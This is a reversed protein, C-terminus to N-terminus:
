RRMAQFIASAGWGALMALVLSLAGYVYPQQRSLNFLWAELGVKRVDIVTEVLDIVEGGRTIFIRIDYGGEILNAPLDIRARFLTEEDLRVGDPLIQYQGEGKRIRILAATFDASNDVENGVSRIVRSISVSHRLDETHTLVEDLARTAAVAYFSPAADVLAMDTNVWLGFRRERHRVIVPTLPGSVTIVVDLPRDDTPPADRKIAGFILIDHGDFTATIAVEDASLGMVIEEAAALTLWLLMVIAALARM